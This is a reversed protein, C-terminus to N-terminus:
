ASPLGKYAGAATSGSEILEKQGHSSCGPLAPPGGADDLRIIIKKRCKLWALAQREWALSVKWPVAFLVEGAQIATYFWYGIM